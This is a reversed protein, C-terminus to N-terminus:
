AHFLSVILLTKWTRFPARLQPLSTPDSNYADILIEPFSIALDPLRALYACQSSKENFFTLNKISKMNENKRPAHEVFIILCTLFM